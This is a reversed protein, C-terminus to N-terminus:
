RPSGDAVRPRDSILVVVPQDGAGLDGFHGVRREGRLFALRDGGPQYDAAHLVEVAFGGVALVLHERDPAVVGQEGVRRELHDLGLRLVTVMGDDLLHERVQGAPGQGMHRVNDKARRDQSWRVQPKTDHVTNNM